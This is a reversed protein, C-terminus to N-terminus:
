EMWFRTTRPVSSVLRQMRSWTMLCFVEFAAVQEAHEGGERFGLSVKDGGVGVVAEGFGAGSAAFRGQSVLLDDLGDLEVGVSCGDGVDGRM